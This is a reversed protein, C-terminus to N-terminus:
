VVLKCRDVLGCRCRRERLGAVHCGYHSPAGRVRRVVGVVVRLGTHRAPGVHRALHVDWEDSVISTLGRVRVKRRVGDACALGAAADIRALAVRAAGEDNEGVAAGDLDTNNGIANAAGVGVVRPHVSTHGVVVIPDGFVDRREADRTWGCAWRRRRRRCGRRRRWRRRRRRRRRRRWRACAGFRAIVAAVAVAVITASSRLVIRARQAGVALVAADSDRILRGRRQRWRRM